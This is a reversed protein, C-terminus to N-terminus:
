RGAIKEKLPQGKSYSTVVDPVRLLPDGEYLARLEDFARDGAAITAAVKDM